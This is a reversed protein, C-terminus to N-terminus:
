EEVEELDIDIDKFDLRAQENVDFKERPDDDKVLTPKGPPKIVHAGLVKNFEKKGMAKEIQALSLPKQTFLLDPNVGADIACQLAAETDDWSRNSRGLVAKYGPFEFGNLCQNLAYAKLEKLYSSVGELRDINEAIEDNSLVNIDRMAELDFRKAYERCFPKAKCFKCWSGCKIEDSRNLAKTAQPRVITDLWSLLVDKNISYTSINEIRPQVIHMHVNKIDYILGDLLNVAGLAYCKLQANETADVRVNKGYKFDIIHLDNGKAIICDATGFTNPAIFDLNLRKEIMLFAKEDYLGKIYDRYIDTYEEMDPSYFENSKVKNIDDTSIPEGKLAEKLKLEGLRHALSGELTYPSQEDEIDETLHISAPCNIWREAASPSLKSHEM